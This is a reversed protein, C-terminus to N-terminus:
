LGDDLDDDNLPHHDERAYGNMESARLHDHNWERLLYLHEARRADKDSESSHNETKIDKESESICISYLVVLFFLSILGIASLITLITMM